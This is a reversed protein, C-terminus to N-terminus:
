QQDIEGAKIVRLSARLNAVSLVPGDPNKSDRVHALTDALEVCNTQTGSYSSKRWQHPVAIM